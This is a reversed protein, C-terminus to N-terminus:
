ATRGPTGAVGPPAIGAKRNAREERYARRDLADETPELNPNTELFRFDTTLDRNHHEKRNEKFRFDKRGTITRHERKEGSSQQRQVSMQEAM